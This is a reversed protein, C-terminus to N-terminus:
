IWLRIKAVCSKATVVVQMFDTTSSDAPVVVYQCRTPLCERSRQPSIAIAETHFFSEICFRSLPFPPYSLPARMASASDTPELHMGNATAPDCRPIVHANLFKDEDAAQLLM